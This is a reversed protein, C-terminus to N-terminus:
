AEGGDPAGAVAEDTAADAAAAAVAAAAVAAAGALAAEATGVGTERKHAIDVVLRV